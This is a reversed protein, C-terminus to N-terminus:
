LPRHCMSRGGWLPNVRHCMSGLTFLVIYRSWTHIPREGYLGITCFVIQFKFNMLINSNEVFKEIDNLDDMKTLVSEEERRLRKREIKIIPHQFVPDLLFYGTV